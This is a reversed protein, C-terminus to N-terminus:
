PGIVEGTEADVFRWGLIEAMDPWRSIDGVEILHEYFTMGNRYTLKWALPIGTKRDVCSWMVSERDGFTTDKVIIISRNNINIEKVFELSDNWTIGFLPAEIYIRGRSTLEEIWYHPFWNCGTIEIMIQKEDEMRGCYYLILSENVRRGEMPYYLVDPKLLRGADGKHYIAIFRADRFIGKSFLPYVNLTSVYVVYHTRNELVVIYDSGYSYIARNKICNKLFQSFDQKVLALPGGCGKVYGTYNYLLTTGNRWFNDIRDVNQVMKCLNIVEDADSGESLKSYYLLSCCSIFLIIFLFTSIILPSRKM